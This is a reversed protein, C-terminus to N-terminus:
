GHAGSLPRSPLPAKERAEASYSTQTHPPYSTGSLEDPRCQSPLDWPILPQSLILPWQIDPELSDTQKAPDGNGVEWLSNEYYM